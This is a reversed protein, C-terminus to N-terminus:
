AEVVDEIVSIVGKTRRQRGGLRMNMSFIDGFYEANDTNEFVNVDGRAREVCNDQYFLSAASDGTKDSAEFADAQIDVPKWVLGDKRWRQVTSRMMFEFGLYTGIVGKEMDAIRYFNTREADSLSDLFQQYHDATLLAVRGKAPINERDFMLKIKGVLAKTFLKRNGTAGSITAATQGGETMVTLGATAGINVGQWGWRYLLGEMADEILQSMQEGMISQRKDYSLEYQEVKEVHKPEQYYTDLVYVVDSDARKVATIPFNTVNKKSKTPAGAVPIHVITGGIVFQDGNFARSAFHNDKFLNEIIDNQWIEKQVAMTAHGKRPIMFVSALLLGIFLAPASMDYISSILVAMLAIFLLSTIATLQKM